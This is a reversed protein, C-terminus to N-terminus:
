PLRGNNADFKGIPCPSARFYEESKERYKPLALATGCLRRHPGIAPGHWKQSHIIALIHSCVKLPNNVVILIM